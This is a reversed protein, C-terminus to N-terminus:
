ALSNFATYIFEQKRYNPYDDCNANQRNRNFNQAFPAGLAM